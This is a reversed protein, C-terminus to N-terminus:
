EGVVVKAHRLVKDYLMYGTQVCDIVLGKRDKEPVPITAVAEFLDTNFPQDITDIVKVGQQSLFSIFKDYILEIGEVISSMDAVKKLTELAREFDDIVPLINTLVNAGGSKILDSKERLTRKRFNDFEAILRLHSDNLAAYKEEWSPEKKMDAGASEDSMKDNESMNDTEDQLNTVEDMGENIAENVDSQSQESTEARKGTHKDM